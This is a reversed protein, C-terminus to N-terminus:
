HITRYIAYYNRPVQYVQMEQMFVFIGVIIQAVKPNELSDVYATGMHGQLYSQVLTDEVSEFIKTVHEIVPGKVEYIM